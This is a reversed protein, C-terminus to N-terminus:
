QWIYAQLNHVFYVGHELLQVIYAVSCQTSHQFYRADMLSYNILCGSQKAFYELKFANGIERGM